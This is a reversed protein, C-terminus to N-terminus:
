KAHEDVEKIRFLTMEKILAMPLEETLPFQISGRGYIYQKLQEEFAEIADAGPYFGIHKVYASMHVLNKKKYIFTPIGYSIKESCECLSHVLTRIEELKEQTTQPYEAIFADIENM